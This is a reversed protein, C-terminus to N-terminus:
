LETRRLIKTEDLAYGFGPGEPLEYYGDVPEYFDTYFFQANHNIRVGWEGLPCIREPQAFLLHVAMRGSENAHPVVPLGYTSALAMIRRMETLGGANLLEPQLVTVAGSDIAQRIQWRTYWHEGFALPISSERALRAHADLDDFNLPEELWAPHYLELRRALKIAYLISYKTPGSLLCDVMIDVSEGVAERVARILAVNAELGADGHTANFPLYWKLASFGKGVWDLSRRAAAEPETSFGLMGAYARVRTQCPGGLMRYVPEGRAKGILDWLCVDLISLASLRQFRTYTGTYLREWIAEVCIPDAGVIEMGLAKAEPSGGYCLGSLGEDTEVQTFWARHPTSENPQLGGRSTEYLALGERLPGELQFVRVRTIKM